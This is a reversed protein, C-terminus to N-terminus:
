YMRTYLENSYKNSLLLDIGSLRGLVEVISKGGTFGGKAVKAPVIAEDKHILAQGTKYVQNTGIALAPIPTSAAAAIQAAGAAAIFPILPLGPPGLSLTRAIGEALSLTAQFIAFAKAQIAARRQLKRKELDTRKDIEAIRKAKQDENLISKEVAEKEKAAASDLNILKQDAVNQFAQGIGSAIPGINGITSAVGAWLAKTKKASEEFAISLTTPVTLINNLSFQDEVFTVPVTIQKPIESFQNEVFTFPVTIGSLSDSVKSFQDEEKKKKEKKEKVAKVSKPTVIETTEVTKKNFIESLGAASGRNTKGFALSIKKIKEEVAALDKNYSKISADRFFNPIAGDNNKAVKAIALLIEEKEKQLKISEQLRLTEKAGALTNKANYNDLVKVLGDVGEKELNINKLYDPYKQQIEAYLKKRVENSINSSSAALLLKELAAKENEYATVANNSYNNYIVIGATLAAGIALISAGVPGLALVMKLSAAGVSSTLKSILGIAAGINTQVSGIIFLVPGLAAALGAIAFITRQATPSLESFAVSMKDISAAVKEIVKEINFAKNLSEGIRAFSIKTADTLNEFSNKLGGTVQPLKAFESTLIQVVQKGTYGLKAVDESVSTGFAAKLAGRLQPLQETLQRLDQGYGSTKNNLQTLALTVLSLEAKGKGVTALTNGFALLSARAEDASFGAAQLNVSGQVAEELGLGPLKAVEKLKIFEASAAASSGMVSILGKQLAEIDSYTKLAAGGIGVLPLTVYASLNKGIEKFQKGSRELIRSAKNLDSSLAETDAGVRIKVSGITFSGM